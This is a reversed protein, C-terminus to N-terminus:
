RESTLQEAWFGRFVVKYRIGGTPGNSADFIGTEKSLAEAVINCFQFIWFGGTMKAKVILYATLQSIQDKEGQEGHL